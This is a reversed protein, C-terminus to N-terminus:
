RNERTNGHEDPADDGLVTLMVPPTTTGMTTLVVPRGEMIAIVEDATPRWVTVLCPTGDMEGNMYPLDECGKGVATHQMWPCKVPSM